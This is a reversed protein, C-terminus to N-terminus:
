YARNTNSAFIAQIVFSKSILYPWTQCRAVMAKTKKIILTLKEMKRMKM